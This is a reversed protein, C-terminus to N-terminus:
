DGLPAQAVHRLRSAAVGAVANFGAAQGFWRPFLERVSEMYSYVMGSTLEALKLRTM